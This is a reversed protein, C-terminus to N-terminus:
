TYSAGHPRTLSFMSSVLRLNSVVLANCGAVAGRWHILTREDGSSVLAHLSRCAPKRFVYSRRSTSLLQCWLSTSLLQCWLPQQTPFCSLTLQSDWRFARSWTVRQNWNQMKPGRAHMEQQKSYIWQRAWVAQILSGPDCNNLLAPPTAITNIHGNATTDDGRWFGGWMKEVLADSSTPSRPLGPEEICWNFRRGFEISETSSEVTRLSGCEGESQWAENEM